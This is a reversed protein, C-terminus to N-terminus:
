LKLFLIAAIFDNIAMSPRDESSNADANVKDLIVLAECRFPIKRAAGGKGSKKEDEDDDKSKNTIVPPVVLVAALVVNSAAWGWGTLMFPKM